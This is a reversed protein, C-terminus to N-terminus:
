MRVLGAALRSCIFTSATDGSSFTWSAQDAGRLGAWLGKLSVAARASSTDEGLCCAVRAGGGGCVSVAFCPWAAPPLWKHGVCLCDGEAAPTSSVKSSSKAQQFTCQSLCSLGGPMRPSYLGPLAVLAQGSSLRSESWLRLGQSAPLCGFVCLAAPSHTAKPCYCVPVHYLRYIGLM